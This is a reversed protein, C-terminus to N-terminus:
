KKDNNLSSKSKEVLRKEVETFFAALVTEVVGKRAGFMLKRGVADLPYGKLSITTKDSTENIFDIELKSRDGLTKGYLDKRMQAHLKKHAPDNILVKGGMAKISFFVAEYTDEFSHDFIKTQYQDYPM